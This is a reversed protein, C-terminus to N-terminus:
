AAKAVASISAIIATQVRSAGTATIWWPTLSPLAFALLAATVLASYDALAVRPERGRAKMMLAESGVCFISAIILNLLFGPGFYWVHALAAPILAVLVQLMMSSVDAKAALYPAERRAFEM